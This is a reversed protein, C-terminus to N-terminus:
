QIADSWDTPLRGGQGLEADLAEFNDRVEVALAAVLRLDAMSVENIDQDPDQDVLDGIQDMLTRITALLETNLNKNMNNM